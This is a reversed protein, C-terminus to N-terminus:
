HLSPTPLRMAYGLGRITQILPAAHHRDIKERLRRIYVEVLNTGPDYDYEWVQRFIDRRSLVQGAAKLLADLLLTERSSLELRRGARRVERTAPDYSLDALKIRESRAASGRRLLSRLRAFLESMAFPKALYDDAGADLGEVCHDVEDRASLMLIPATIGKARLSAVLALGNMGPLMVDVILVDWDGALAAALGSEGDFACDVEYQEYLLAEKLLASTKRENEVILIKM